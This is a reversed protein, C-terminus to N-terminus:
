ASAESMLCLVYKSHAHDASLLLGVETHTERLKLSVQCRMHQEADCLM